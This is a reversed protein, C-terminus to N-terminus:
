VEYRLITKVIELLSRKNLLMQQELLDKTVVDGNPATMALRFYHPVGPPLALHAAIFIDEGGAQFAGMRGPLVNESVFVVPKFKGCKKIEAKMHAGAEWMLPQVEERGRIIDHMRVARCEIDRALEARVEEDM